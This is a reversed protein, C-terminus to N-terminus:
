KEKEKAALKLGINYDNQFNRKLDSKQIIIFVKLEITVKEV